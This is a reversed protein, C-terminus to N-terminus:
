PSVRVLTIDFVLVADPPIVVRGDPAEVGATGYGLAPPIWVTRTEGPRMAQLAEGFGAVVARVPIRVPDLRPSRDFETGDALRAVYRIFVDDGRTPRQGSGTQTVTWLLGSRSSEVGPRAAVEALFRAAAEAPTEAVAPATTGVYVSDSPFGVYVSDSPATQAAVPAAVLFAAPAALRALLTNM